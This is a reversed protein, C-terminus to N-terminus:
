LFIPLLSKHAPASFFQFIYLFSVFNERGLSHATLYSHFFTNELCGASHRLAAVSFNFIFFTSKMRESKGALKLRTIEPACLRKAYTQRLAASTSKVRGYRGSMKEPRSLSRARQGTHVHGKGKAPSDGGSLGLGKGEADHQAGHTGGYM